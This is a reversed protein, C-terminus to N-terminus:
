VADNGRANKIFARLEIAKVEIAELHKKRLEVTAALTYAMTLTHIDNVLQTVIEKTKDNM